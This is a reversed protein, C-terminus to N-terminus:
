IIAGTNSKIYIYTHIKYSNVGFLLVLRFVESDKDNLNLLQFLILFYKQHKLSM